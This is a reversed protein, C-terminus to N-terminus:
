WCFLLKFKQQEFVYYYYYVNYIDHKKGSVPVGLLDYIMAQYTFEHLMPAVPDVSRDLILLTAVVFVQWCLVCLACVHASVENLM